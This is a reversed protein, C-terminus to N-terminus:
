FTRGNILYDMDLDELEAKVAEDSTSAYWYKELDRYLCNMLSRLYDEVADVTNSDLEVGGGYVELFVSHEHLYHSHIRSLKVSAGEAQAPDLGLQKLIAALDLDDWDTTFSLGDGQSWFGTFQINDLKVTHGASKMGEIFDEIIPYCWLEDEVLIHRRKEIVAQQIESPLENFKYTNVTVQQM